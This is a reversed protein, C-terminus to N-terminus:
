KGEVSIQSDICNLLKKYQDIEAQLKTNENQRQALNSKLCKIDIEKTENASKLTKSELSLNINEVTVKDLKNKLYNIRDSLNNVTEESKQKQNLSVELIRNKRILESIELNLKEKDTQLKSRDSQLNSMANSKSSNISELDRIRVVSKDYNETLNAFRVQNDAHQKTLSEIRELLGPQSNKFDVHQKHLNEIDQKLQDINLNLKDIVNKNLQKFEDYEEQLTALRSSVKNNTKLMQEKIEKNSRILNSNEKITANHKDEVDKLKKSIDYLEGKLKYIELDKNDM